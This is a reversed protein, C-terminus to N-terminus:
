PVGRHLLSETLALVADRTSPSDFVANGAEYWRKRAAEETVVYGQLEGNAMTIIHCDPFRSRIAKQFEVFWEGPWAIIRRSGIRMVMVEALRSDEVRRRLEGAADLKALQLTSQAGFVDCESTRVSARDAGDASRQNLVNTAEELLATASAVSPLDRIKLEVVDSATAIRPTSSWEVRDTAECVPASLCTAIREAEAFTNARVVHRPSQDGCAGVHVLVPLSAGLRERIQQRAIGLFDGSVLLSDEHLVTPHMTAILSLGILRRHAAGRIALIPVELDSPGDIHHRNTGIGPAAALTWGAEAPVRSAYAETAAAVMADEVDGLYEADPEPVARNRDDAVCKVVVPGSHTHTASILIGDKNIPLKACIRERVRAVLARGVYILDNALLLTANGGSEIWLANCELPDHVGTSHRSVSPYGYLFSPVPPTIDRVAGGAM